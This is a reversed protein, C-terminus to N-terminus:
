GVAAAETEPWAAPGGRTVNADEFKRIGGGGLWDWDEWEDVSSQEPQELSTRCLNCTLNKKENKKMSDEGHVTLSTGFSLGRKFSM